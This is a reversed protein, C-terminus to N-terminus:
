SLALESCVLAKSSATVVGVALRHAPGERDLEDDVTLPAQGDVLVRELAREDDVLQGVEDLLGHELLEVLDGLAAADEARHLGAVLAAPDLVLRHEVLVALVVPRQGDDADVGEAVRVLVLLRRLRDLQGAAGLLLLLALEGPDARELASCSTSAFDARSSSLFTAISPPLTKSTRM